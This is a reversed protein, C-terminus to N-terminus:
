HELVGNNVFTLYIPIIGEKVPQYTSQLVMNNHFHLSAEMASGATKTHERRIITEM